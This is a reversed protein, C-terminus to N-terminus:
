QTDTIGGQSGCQVHGKRAALRNVTAAAGAGGECSDQLVPVDYWSAAADSLAPGAVEVVAAAADAAKHVVAAATTGPGASRHPVDAQQAGELVECGSVACQLATVGGPRRSGPSPAGSHAWPKMCSGVAGEAAAAGMVGPRASSGSVPSVVGGATGPSATRNPISHDQSLAESAAAGGPSDPHRGGEDTTPLDASGWTQRPGLPQGATVSDESKSSLGCSSQPDNPVAETGSVPGLAAAPPAQPPPQEPQLLHGAFPTGPTVAAAAAQPVAISAALNDAGPSRSPSQTPNPHALGPAHQAGGHQTDPARMSGSSVGAAAGGTSVAAAAAAPPLPLQAAPLRPASSAQAASAADSGPHHRAPSHQWGGAANRDSCTSSAGQTSMTEAAFNAAAARLLRNFQARTREDSWRDLRGAPGMSRQQQQQQQRWQHQQPYGAGRGSYGSAHPFYPRTTGSHQQQTGRSRWSGSDARSNTYGTAPAASHLGGGIALIAQSPREQLLPLQQAYANSSSLVPASATSGAAPQATALSGQSAESVRDAESAVASADGLQAAVAPPAGEAAAGVASGPASRAPLVQQDTGQATNAAAAAAAPGAAGDPAARAPSTPQVLAGDAACPTSAAAAIAAAAPSGPNAAAAGDGVALDHQAAGGDAPPTAAPPPQLPVGLQGAAQPASMHMRVQHLLSCDEFTHGYKGCTVCFLCPCGLAHGQRQNCSTCLRRCQESTHGNHGCRGCMGAQRTPTGARHQQQQQQQSSSCAAVASSMTTGAPPLSTAMHQSISSLTEPAAAEAALGITSATATLQIHPSRSSHALPAACPTTSSSHTQLVPSRLAALSAAAAAVAEALANPAHQLQQQHAQVTSHAAAAVQGLLGDEQPPLKCGGPLTTAASGAAPSAPAHQPQQQPAVPAAAPSNSSSHGDTSSHLSGLPTARSGSPLNVFDNSGVVPQQVVGATAAMMIPAPAPVSPNFLLNSAANSIASTGHNSSTTAQPAQSTSTAALGPLLVQPTPTGGPMQQTMLAQLQQEYQLQVEHQLRAQQWQQQMLVLQPQLEQLKQEMGSPQQQQGHVQYVAPQQQPQPQQLPQPQAQEQPQQVIKLRLWGGQVPVWQYYEGPVEGCQLAAQSSAAFPLAPISTVAQQQQQQQQAATPTPGPIVFTMAPGPLQPLAQCPAQLPYAPQQLPMLLSPMGTLPLQVGAMGPVAACSFNIPQPTSLFAAAAASAAAGAAAAAVLAQKSARGTHGATPPAATRGHGPGQVAAPRHSRFRSFAAQATTLAASCGKAHLQGAAAGCKRCHTGATAHGRPSRAAPASTSDNCAMSGCSAKLGAIHAALASSATSGANPCASSASATGTSSYASAMNSTSVTAPSSASCVTPTCITVAASGSSALSPLPAPVSHMTPQTAEVAGGLQALFGPSLAAAGAAPTGPHVATVATCSPASCTHGSSVTATSPGAAAAAAAPATRSAGASCDPTSQALPAPEAPLAQGQPRQVAAQAATAATCVEVTSHCSRSSSRAAVPAPSSLAAVMKAIAQLLESPQAMSTAPGAAAAAATMATSSTAGASRTRQPQQAAPPMCSPIMGAAEAAAAVPPAPAPLAPIATSSATCADAYMGALHQGAAALTGGHPETHASAPNTGSLQCGPKNPAAEVAAAAHSAAAGESAATTTGALEQWSGALVSLGRAAPVAGSGEQLVRGAVLDILTSSTSSHLTTSPIQCGQSNGAEAATATHAASCSAQASVHATGMCDM